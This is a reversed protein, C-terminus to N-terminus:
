AIPYTTDRYIKQPALIQVQTQSLNNDNKQPIKIEAIGPITTIEFSNEALNEEFPAFYNKDTTQLKIIETPSFSNVVNVIDLINQNLNRSDINVNGSRSIELIEITTMSNFAVLSEAAFNPDPSNLNEIFNSPNVVKVQKEGSGNGGAPPTEPKPKVYGSLKPNAIAWNGRAIWSNAWAENGKDVGSKPPSGPQPSPTPRPNPNRGSGGDMLPAM